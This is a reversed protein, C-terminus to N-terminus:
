VGTDIRFVRIYLGERIAIDIMNKTGKSKGDWFAVLAEAREAMVVNRKYGASKGYTDWQAPYVDCPIEMEKAWREGMQDVGRAGGAVVRNIHWGYDTVEQMHIKFQEYDFYNRSGAIITIM